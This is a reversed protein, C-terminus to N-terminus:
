DASVKNYRRDFRLKNEDRTRYNYLTELMRLYNETDVQPKLLSPGFQEVKHMMNKHDYEPHNMVAIFATIFKPNKYYSFGSKGIDEVRRAVKNALDIHKVVLNGEYFGAHKLSAGKGILEGRSNLSSLLMVAISIPFDYKKVFRAVEVYNQNQQKIFAHLYDDSRWGSNHQVEAVNNITFEGTSWRYYFPIDLRKCAEYRHQGDLIVWTNPDVIAPFEKMFNKGESFTKMFRRVKDEDIPRNRSDLEFLFERTEFVESGAVAIAELKSTAKKITLKESM